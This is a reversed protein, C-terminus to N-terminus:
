LHPMKKVQKRKYDGENRLGADEDEADVEEGAKYIEFSSRRGRSKSRGRLPVVGGIDLEGTSQAPKPTDSFQITSEM